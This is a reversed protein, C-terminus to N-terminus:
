GGSSLREKASAEPDTQLDPMEKALGVVLYNGNVLPELRYGQSELVPALPIQRAQRIESRKWTVKALTCLILVVLASPLGSCLRLLSPPSLKSAVFRIFRRRLSVTQGHARDVMM